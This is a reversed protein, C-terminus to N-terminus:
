SGEPFEDKILGRADALRDAPVYVRSASLDLAPGYASDSMIEARIEHAELAARVVEAAFQPGSFVVEWGRINSM